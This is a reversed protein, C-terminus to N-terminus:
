PAPAPRARAASAPSRARRWATARVRWPRFAASVARRPLPYRLHRLAFSHRRTELPQEAVLLQEEHRASEAREGGPHDLEGAQLGEKEGARLDRGEDETKRVDAYHPAFLHSLRSLANAGGAVDRDEDVAVGTVAVGYVNVVGDLVYTNEISRMGNATFSRDRARYTPVVGPAMRALRLWDRGNLPLESIRQGDIVAGTTSSESQLM